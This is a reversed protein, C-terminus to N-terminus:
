WGKEPYTRACIFSHVKIDRHMMHSKHLYELGRLSYMMIHAIENEELGKGM